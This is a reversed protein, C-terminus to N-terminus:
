APRHRASRCRSRAGSRHPAAAGATGAAAATTERCRTAAPGWILGPGAAMMGRGVRALSGSPPGPRAAHHHPDRRAGDHADAQEGQGHDGRLDRRAEDCLPLPLAWGPGCASGAGTTVSASSSRRSARISSSRVAAVADDDCRGAPAGSGSAPLSEGQGAPRDCVSAQAPPRLLLLRARPPPVRGTRRSRPVGVPYEGFRCPVEAGAPCCALWTWGSASAARSAGRSAPPQESSPGPLCRCGASVRGPRRRSVHMRPHSHDDRGIIISASLAHRDGAPQRKGASM